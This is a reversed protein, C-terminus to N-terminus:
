GLIAHTIGQWWSPDSRWLYVALSQGVILVPLAYRYVKNVQGEVLLDRVVGFVMLLDLLPFFLSHNFVYDFRAVPADM